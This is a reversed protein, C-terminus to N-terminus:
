LRHHDKETLSTALIRLTITQRTVEGANLVPSM